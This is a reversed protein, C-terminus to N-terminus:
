TQWTEFKSFVEAFHCHSFGQGLGCRSFLQSIFLKTQKRTWLSFELHWKNRFGGRSFDPSGLNSGTGKDVLEGSKVIVCLYIISPHTFFIFSLNYFVPALGWHQYHDSTLASPFTMLVSRQVGGGVRDCYWNVSPRNMQDSLITDLWTSLFAGPRPKGIDQLWGMVNSGKLVQIWSKPSM